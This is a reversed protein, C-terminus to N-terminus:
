FSAVYDYFEQVVERDLTFKEKYLPRNSNRKKEENIVFVKFNRGTHKKCFAQYYDFTKKAITVQGTVIVFEVDASVEPSEAIEMFDIVARKCYCADLYTKSEVVIRIANDVVRRIHRDVQVNEMVEGDCEVTLYDNKLSKLHPIHTVVDDVFNEFVAGSENACKRAGDTKYINYLNDVRYQYNEFVSQDNM